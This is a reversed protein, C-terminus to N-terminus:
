TITEVPTGEGSDFTISYENRNYYIDVVTSGDAM